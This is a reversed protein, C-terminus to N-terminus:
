GGGVVWLFAHGLLYGGVGGLIIGSGAVVIPRKDANGYQYGETSTLRQIPSIAM